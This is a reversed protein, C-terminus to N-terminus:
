KKLCISASIGRRADTHICSIPPTRSNPSSLALATAAIDLAQAAPHDLYFSSDSQYSHFGNKEGCGLRWEPMSLQGYHHEAPECSLLFFVACDEAPTPEPATANQQVLDMQRCYQEVAGVLALKISGDALSGLAGQLAGAFSLGFQCATCSPGQINLAVSLFGCFANNVSHSFHTPSALQAGGDLVSDMFAFSSDAAGFASGIYLGIKGALSDRCPLDVGGVGLAQAAASLALRGATSVRRLNLGPLAEKLPRADAIATSGLKCALSFKRLNMNGYHLGLGHIYFKSSMASEQENHTELILVHLCWLRM